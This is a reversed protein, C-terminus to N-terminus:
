GSNPSPSLFGFLATAAECGAGCPDMRGRVSGAKVMEGETTRRRGCCTETVHLGSARGLDRALAAAPDGQLGERM